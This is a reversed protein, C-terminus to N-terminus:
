SGDEVDADWEIVDVSREGGFELMLTDDLMEALSSTVEMARSFDDRHLNRGPIAYSAVITDGQLFLKIYRYSTNLDNLRALLRDRQGELPVEMVLPSSIQVIPSEPDGAFDVYIAASEFLLRYSDGEDSTGFVLGERTM